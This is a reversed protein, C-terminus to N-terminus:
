FGEQAKWFCREQTQSEDSFLLLAVDYPKCHDMLDASLVHHVAFLEILFAFLECLSQPRFYTQM